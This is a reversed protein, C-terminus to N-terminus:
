PAPTLRVRLNYSVIEVEGTPEIVRVGHFGSFLSPTRSDHLVAGTQKNLAVTHLTTYTAGGVQKWNRALLLLVPSTELRDLVLNQDDIKRQWLKAGTSRDWAALTGHVRTSPVSDGYSYNNTHGHNIVLYLRDRDILPTISEETPLVPFPDFTQRTGTVLDILELGRPAKSNRAGREVVLLGREGLRAIQSGPKLALEWRIKGTLPNWRRLNLQQSSTNFLRLGATRTLQVLDRDVPTLTRGLEAKLDPIELKRGDLLRYATALDNTNDLVFVVDESAIVSAYQPLSRHSWRLLGTRPDFVDLSRRGLIGIGHPNCFVLRGSHTQRFSWFIAQSDVDATDFMPAPMPRHAGGLSGRDDGVAVSWALERRVPSVMQLVDRYLCVMRHGLFQHPVYENSNIRLIGRLPAMWTWEGTTRSQISLRQEQPEVQMALETWSPYEQPPLLEQVQPQYSMPMRQAILPRHAKAATTASVPADDPSHRRWETLREGLTAGDSLRSDLSQKRLQDIALDADDQLGFQQWLRALRWQSEAAIAADPHTAWPQLEGEARAFMGARAYEDALQWHLRSALPHFDLWAAYPLWDDIPKQSLQDLELTLERTLEDRLEPSAASWLDQLQGTVWAALQVRVEPATPFPVLRPGPSATALERCRLYAERLNGQNRLHAIRVAEIQFKDDESQALAELQRLAQEARSLDTHVIQLWASWLDRRRREQLDSPWEPAPATSLRQVAADFRAELLDFEAIRLEMRFDQPVPPAAAIQELFREKEIFVRCGDPGISVFRPGVKILNGLPPEGPPLQLPAATAGTTWDVLWVVGSNLPVACTSGFVCARGTPRQSENWAATWLVNDSTTELAEVKDTSVVLVKDPAAVTFYLGAERPRSWVPEGTLLNLCVLHDADPPAFLVHHGAIVPAGVAWSEQLNRHPLFQGGPDHGGEEARQWYRHAWLLSRRTRDVALLWGVTTPCVILGDRVAVPAGLWRRAIDLEIKTDSYGLLQSWLPQGTAADLAQLRIEQGKGVVAYLENGDCTPVGFFFAGALPLALAEQTAPGGVTWELRGSELNYASLRNSSWSAGFADSEDNGMQGNYGSQNRTMVAVDELLFLRTGDSSLFGNTADRFLWSALPHMEAAGGQYDGDFQQANVRIRWVPNPNALNQPTGLLIREPSIGEDTHWLTRGSAIDAVRVSQLDRFVMKDGVVLPSAAPIAPVQDDALDQILTQLKEQVAAVRSLPQSWEALLLPLGPNAAAARASTGGFEHWERPRELETRPPGQQDWWTRPHMRQGGVRVTLSDPADLVGASFQEIDTLGAQRAAYAAQLRWAPDRTGRWGRALLETNWLTAPLFERNDFQWRAIKAAAEAGADTHFYRTALDVLKQLDPHPELELLLQRALGGFRREYEALAPAPLKGLARNAANRVSEWRGPTQEIVADEPLDLLKQLLEVAQKWDAQQLADQSARWIADIQPDKPVRSDVADKGPTSQDPPAGPRGGRGPAPVLGNRFLQFLNQLVPKLDPPNVAPAEGAPAPDPKKEDAAQAWAGSVGILLVALLLLSIGAHRITLLQRTDSM